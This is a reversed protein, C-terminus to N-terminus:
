IRVMQNALLHYARGYGSRCLSLDGFARAKRRAPFRMPLGAPQEFGMPSPLVRNRGPGFIPRNRYSIM